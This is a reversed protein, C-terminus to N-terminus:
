RHPSRYEELAGLVVRQVSTPAMEPAIGGSIPQVAAVPEKVLMIGPEQVGNQKKPLEGM